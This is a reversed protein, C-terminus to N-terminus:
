FMINWCQRMDWKRAKTKDTLLDGGSADHNNSDNDVNHIGKVCYNSIWIVTVITGTDGNGNYKMIMNYPQYQPHYGAQENALLHEQLQSHDIYIGMARQKHRGIGLTRITHM